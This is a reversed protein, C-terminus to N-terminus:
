AMNAKKRGIKKRFLIILIVLSSMCQFYTPVMSHYLINKSETIAHLPLNRFRYSAIMFHLIDTLSIFFIILSVLVSLSWSWKQSKLLGVGAVISATPIVFTLLLTFGSYYIIGYITNDPEFNFPYQLAWLTNEVGTILTFGGYLIFISSITKLIYQNSHAM